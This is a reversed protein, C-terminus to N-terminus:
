DALPLWLGAKFLDGDAQLEFTGGQVRCLSEAISLGLGSGDSGRSQDGRTFRQTLEEVSMTIAERSINKVTIGGFRGQQELQLYVRTGPLTYKTVNNMLNELIRWSKQSDAWVVPGDPMGQLILEINQAALTDSTEGVAQLALEHLNLPAPHLEVNGSSAKSAEVLDEILRKLKESKQALTALYEAQDSETLDEKQLLDVYNIVSTLPTKLDHSVNTILETRLHEDILAKQVAAQMGQNMELIGAALQRLGAPMPNVQLQPALNGHKIQQVATKISDLALAYKNLLLYAVVGTGLSFVVLLFLALAGEAELAFLCVLTSLMMWLIFGALLLITQWKLSRKQANGQMTKCLKYCVTNKLVTKNKLHRAFSTLAELWLALPAIVALGCIISVVTKWAALEKAVLAEGVLVLVGALIGAGWHLLNWMHDIKHLTVPGKKKSRGTVLLLNLCCLACLVFLTLTGAIMFPRVKVFEAFSQVQEAWMSNGNMALAAQEDFGLYVELGMEAWENIISPFILYEPAARDAQEVAAIGVVQNADLQTIRWPMAAEAAKYDTSKMNTCVRGSKTDIVAYQLLAAPVTLTDKAYQYRSQFINRMGDIDWEAQETANNRIYAENVVIIGDEAKFRPDGLWNTEGYSSTTLLEKASRIEAAIEKELLALRQQREPEFATGNKVAAESIFEQTM